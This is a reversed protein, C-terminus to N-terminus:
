NRKMLIVYHKIKLSYILKSNLVKEIQYTIENLDDDYKAYTFIFVISAIFILFVYAFFLICKKASCCDNCYYNDCFEESCRWKFDGNTDSICCCLWCPFCLYCFKRDEKTM